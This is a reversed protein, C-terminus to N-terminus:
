TLASAIRSNSMCDPRLAHIFFSCSLLADVDEASDFVKFLNAPDVDFTSRCTAAMDLLLNRREENTPAQALDYSLEQVWGFTKRRVCQLVAIARDSVGESPSSALVRTVLLSVASMQVGDISRAGVDMILSDLEDLLAICFRSDQLEQHWIWTGTNLDLPGVELAAHTLLFHVQRRRLNLTRRCLGQLINLWQLLGGSRLQSFAIFEDLSFDEPCDAQASLVENPTHFTYNVYKDLNRYPFGHHELGYKFSPQQDFCRKWSQWISLRDPITPSYPEIPHKFVYRVMPSNRSNSAEPYFYAVHIQHRLLPGQREVLYPQLAPVRALLHSAEEADYPHRYNEMYYYFHHLIRPAASRWIRVCAPCQLEFVVVKAHLLLAPLPSQWVEASEAQRRRPLHQQHEDHTRSLCAGELQPGVRGSIKKAADEEIRAKLQQHHPSQDYYRVPFSDETIEDSLVSWGPRSQSHRASLYQYACSLRHLSTTKRLLLTGLCAIPIEPPYDALMPIEKVVLKDLAVYLETATLLRTSMDEPNKLMLECAKMMYKDMLIELQACAEDVNTVCSFWDDIGEEVSQEVDYLAVGPDADYAEDFFIGNSSLFDEITGRSRLSPHFPTRQPGINALANRIYERSDLLSLQTDRTLEDQSPNRFPSPRANLQEWRTDLIERLCTCTKLAMESLWAPTSSGLKSLRRLIKSSILHLLDSSLTAISEHRAFTCIFFLIFRKYSAHELSRNVSTQIAVRILLWLPSRRWADKLKRGTEWWRGVHDRVRKIIRSVDAPCGVGRSTSTLLATYKTVGPVDAARGVNRVVGNFMANIYQPHTPPPLPSDSDVANPRSLFNALEFQFERDDIVENPTEVASGPYSCILPEPTEKVDDESPSVEFAECVM